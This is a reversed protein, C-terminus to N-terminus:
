LDFPQELYFDPCIRKKCLCSNSVMRQRQAVDGPPRLRVAGVSRLQNEHKNELFLKSRHLM